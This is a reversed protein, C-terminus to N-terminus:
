DSGCVASVAEVGIPGALTDMLAPFLAQVAPASAHVERAQLNKYREMMYYRGDEGRFPAYLVVGEEVEVVKDALAVVAEEFAQEAGSKVEFTAIYGVEECASWAPSGLGILAAVLTTRIAAKSDCQLM